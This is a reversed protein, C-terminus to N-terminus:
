WAVVRRVNHDADGRKILRAFTITAMTTVLETVRLASTWLSAIGSEWGGAHVGAPRPM